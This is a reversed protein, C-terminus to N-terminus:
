CQICGKKLAIIQEVLSDHSEIDCERCVEESMSIVIYIKTLLFLLLYVSWVVYLDSASCVFPVGNVLLGDFVFHLFSLMIRCIVQKYHELAVSLLNM